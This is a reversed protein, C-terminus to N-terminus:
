CWPRQPATQPAPRPEALAPKPYSYLGTYAGIGGLERRCRAQRIGLAPSRVESPPPPLSALCATLPVARPLLSAATVCLLALAHMAARHISPRFRYTM